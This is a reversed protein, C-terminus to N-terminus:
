VNWPLKWPTFGDPAARAAPMNRSDTVNVLLEVAFSQVDFLWDHVAVKDYDGIAHRGLTGEPRGACSGGAGSPGQRTRSRDPVGPTGNAPHKQAKRDADDADRAPAM